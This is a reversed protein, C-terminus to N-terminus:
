RALCQYAAGHSGILEGVEWFRALCERHAAQERPPDCQEGEEQKAPLKGRSLSAAGHADGTLQSSGAGSDRNARRGNGGGAGARRAGLRGVRHAHKASM